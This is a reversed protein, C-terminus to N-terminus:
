STSLAQRRSNTPFELWFRIEGDPENAVGAEGGHLQMIARVIALGLGTGRAGGRLENGASYFREFLHELHEDPIPAGKNLVGVCSTAGAAKLRVRIMSGEAAHRIANSLLNMLARQVLGEDAVVSAQGDVVIGLGREAATLELYNAVHQAAAALDVTQLQLASRASEAQALFLMDNVLRVLWHLEGMNEELVNALQDASRERSLTVQTRGLLTSLPTRMEHALDGSFRWLRSVDDDLRDLMHNFALGLRALEEPLAQLDIRKSLSRVTVQDVTNQFRVLPRLGLSVIVMVGVFLTALAFPAATGATLRLQRLLREDETRDISVVIEYAQGDRTRGAAALSLMPVGGAGLTWDLFGDTQWTDYRLREISASAAPSLAVYPAKRGAAAVALHLESRGAILEVLKYASDRVAAADPMGDLLLRAQQARDALLLRRQADLESGFTAYSLWLIAAGQLLGLVGVLWALRGKLSSRSM